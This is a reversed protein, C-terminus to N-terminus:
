KSFIHSPGQKVYLDYDYVDENATLYKKNMPLRGTMYEYNPTMTDTRKAVYDYNPKYDPLGEKEDYFGKRSGTKKM